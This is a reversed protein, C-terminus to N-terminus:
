VRYIGYCRESVFYDLIDSLTGTLYPDDAINFEQSTIQQSNITIQIYFSGYKHFETFDMRYFHWDKWKAVSVKYGIHNILIKM